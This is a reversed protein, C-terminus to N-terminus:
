CTEVALLLRLLAIIGLFSLTLAEHGLDIGLLSKAASLPKSKAGAFGDGKAKGFSVAELAHRERRYTVISSSGASVM